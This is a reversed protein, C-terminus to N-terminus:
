AFCAEKGEKRRGGLNFEQLCEIGETPVGFSRLLHSSGTVCAPVLSYGAGVRHCSDAFGHGFEEWPNSRQDIIGLMGNGISARYHVKEGGMTWGCKTSTSVCLQLGMRTRLRM